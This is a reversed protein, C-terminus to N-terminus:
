GEIEARLADEAIRSKQVVLNLRQVINKEKKVAVESSAVVEAMKEEMDKVKRAMSDASLRLTDAMETAARLRGEVAQRESQTTELRAAIAEHSALTDALSTAHQQSILQEERLLKEVVSYEFLINSYALRDLEWASTLFRTNVARSEEQFTTLDSGTSHLLELLLAEHNISPLASTVGQLADVHFLIEHEMDRLADVLSANQEKMQRILHALEVVQGESNALKRELRLVQIQSVTCEHQIRKHSEIPVTSAALRGYEEVVRRILDKYSTIRVLLDNESDAAEEKLLNFANEANRTREQSDDVLAELKQAAALAAQIEEKRKDEAQNLKSETSLIYKKEAALSKELDSIRKDREKLEERRKTELSQLSKRIDGVERQKATMQIRDHESSRLKARLDKIETQDVTSAKKFDQIRADLIDINKKQKHLKDAQEANTKQSRTLETKLRDVEAQYQLTTTLPPLRSFPLTM